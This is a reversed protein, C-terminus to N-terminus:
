FANKKHIDGGFAHKMPEPQFCPAMIFHGYLAREMTAYLKRGDYPMVIGYLAAFELGVYAIPTAAIRLLDKCAELLRAKIQYNKEGEYKMWFHACSALLLIRFAINVIATILHVFPTGFALMSCKIAVVRKSENLYRRGTSQDILFAPELIGAWLVGKSDVTWDNIPQFDRLQIDM